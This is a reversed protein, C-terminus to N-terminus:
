YLQCKSLTSGIYECTIVGFVLKMKRNNCNMNKKTKKFCSDLNQFIKDQMITIILKKLLLIKCELIQLSFSTIFNVIKVKPNHKLLWKKLTKKKLPKKLFFFLFFSFLDVHPSNKVLKLSWWFNWDLEKTPGFCFIVM